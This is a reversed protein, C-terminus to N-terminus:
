TSASDTRRRPSPAPAVSAARRQQQVRRATARSACDPGAAATRQQLLLAHVRAVAPLLWAATAAATVRAAATPGLQLDPHWRASSGSCPSTGPQAPSSCFSTVLTGGSGASRPAPTSTMANSHTPPIRNSHLCSAAGDLLPLYGAAHTCPCASHLRHAWGLRDAVPRGRSLSSDLQPPRAAAALGPRAPQRSRAAAPVPPRSPSGPCVAPASPRSPSSLGSRANQPRM